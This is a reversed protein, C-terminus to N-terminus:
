KLNNWEEQTIEHGVLAQIERLVRRLLDVSYEDYSPIALNHTKYRMIQHRAGEYPGNFGLARCKRIFDKRKCPSWRSL